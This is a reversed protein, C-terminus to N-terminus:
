VLVHSATLPLPILDPRRSELLRLHFPLCLLITAEWNKLSVSLCPVSMLVNEVLLQARMPSSRRPTSWAAMYEIAMDGLLSSNATVESLDVRCINSRGREDVLDSYEAVPVLDWRLELLEEM